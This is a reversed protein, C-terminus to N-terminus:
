ISKVVLITCNVVAVIQTSCILSLL